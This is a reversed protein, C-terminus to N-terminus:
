SFSLFVVAGLGPAHRLRRGFIDGFKQSGDDSDFDCHFPEFAFPFHTLVPALFVTLAHNLFQRFQIGAFRVFNGSEDLSGAM